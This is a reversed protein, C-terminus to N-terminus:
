YQPVTEDLQQAWAAIGGHMNVVHTFGHQALYNAVQQSRMGHHCLCAIPQDATYNKQLEPLKAPLSQMPIHLLTFGDPTVSATQFEWPERVDLVVPLASAGTTAAEQRWDAFQAPTVQVIM